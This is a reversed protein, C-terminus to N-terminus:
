WLDLPRNRGKWMTVENERRADRYVEIGNGSPDQFYLSESIGHDVESIRETETEARDKVSILAERDPVEFAVHYLGPGRGPSETGGVEQLAVDHHKSGWTLFAYQAQREQIEFKFVNRYFELSEELNTVKLHVHGLEFSKEDSDTM